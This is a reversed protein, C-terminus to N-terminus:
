AAKARRRVAAASLGAGLLFLLGPEPVSKCNEEGGVCVKGNIAQAPLEFGDADSLFRGETPVQTLLLNSLGNGIATFSVTALRFEDGQLAKLEAHTLFDALFLLELPSGTGGAFGSSVDCFGCAATGMKADPDVTYSAGALVSDNFSLLLSVGGVSEDAALGSVLIDVSVTDSISADQSAPSISIIAASAPAAFGTGLLMVPVLVGALKRISM